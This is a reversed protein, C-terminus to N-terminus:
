ECSEHNAKCHEAQKQVHVGMAVAFCAQLGLGDIGILSNGQGEIAVFFECGMDLREPDGLAYANHYHRYACRERKGQRDHSKDGSALQCHVAHVAIDEVLKGDLDAVESAELLLRGCRAAQLGIAARWADAREIQDPEGQRVYEGFDYNRDEALGM